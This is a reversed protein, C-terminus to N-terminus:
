SASFFHVISSISGSVINGFKRRRNDTQSPQTIWLIGHIHNPMIGYCDLDANSFHHPIDQWCQDAIAGLANLRMTGNKIDGFLCQKQKTCITIFYAGTQSYDYNKLRISRRHHIEPNYPM